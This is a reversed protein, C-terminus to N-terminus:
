GIPHEESYSSHRGNEQSSGRPLPDTGVDSQPSGLISAEIRESLHLGRGPWPSLREGGFWSGQWAWAAVTPGTNLAGPDQGARLYELARLDPHLDLKM